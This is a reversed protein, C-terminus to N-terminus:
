WVSSDILVISLCLKVLCVIGSVTATCGAPFFADTYDAIACMYHTFTLLFCNM